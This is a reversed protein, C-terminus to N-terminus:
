EAASVAQMNALPIRITRWGALNISLRLGDRAEFEIQFEGSENASVQVIPLGKETWIMISAGSPSVRPIGKDLVQGVVCIKNSQPQRDLRLDVTLGEAEYVLQRTTVAGLRIGAPLPQAFTDFVLNALVWPRPESSYKAKFESKVMRVVDEPPTYTKENSVTMHVRKWIDFAAACDSCGTALHSEINARTESKSLGRVFDAWIQESFHEM